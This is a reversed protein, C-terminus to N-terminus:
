RPPSEADAALEPKTIGPLTQVLDILEVQDARDLQKFLQSMTFHLRLRKGWVYGILAGPVLLSLAAFEVLVEVTGYTMKFFYMVVLVSILRDILVAALIWLLARERIRFTMYRAIFIIVFALVFNVLSPVILQILPTYDVNVQNLLVMTMGIAFGLLSALARQVFQLLSVAVLLVLWPNMYVGRTAITRVRERPSTKRDLHAKLLVPYSAFLGSVIAGIINPAVGAATLGATAAFIVILIIVFIRISDSM